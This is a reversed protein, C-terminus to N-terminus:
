EVEGGASRAPTSPPNQLYQRVALSDSLCDEVIRGDPGVHAVSFTGFRGALDAHLSGDPLTRVVPDGVPKPLGLDGLEADAPAPVLDGTEPQVAVRM